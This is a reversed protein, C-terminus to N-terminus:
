VKELFWGPGLWSNDHRIKARKVRGLDKKADLVFTDIRLFSLLLLYRQSFFYPHLLFLKLTPVDVFSTLNCSLRNIPDLLIIFHYM